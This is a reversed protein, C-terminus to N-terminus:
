GHHACQGSSRRIHIERAFHMLLVPFVLHQQLRYRFKSNARDRYRNIFRREDCTFANDTLAPNSDLAIPKGDFGFLGGVRHDFLQTLVWDLTGDGSLGLEVYFQALKMNFDVSRLVRMAPAYHDSHCPEPAMRPQTTEM